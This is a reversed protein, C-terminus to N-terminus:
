NSRNEEIAVLLVRLVEELDERPINLPPVLRVVNEATANALVQHHMMSIVIPKALKDLEIGIM